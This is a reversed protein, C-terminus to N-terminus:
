LLHLERALIFVGMVLVFWGFAPKLQCGAIRQSLVNGATIGAMAVGTVLALYGWPIAANAHVSGAFGLLSNATIVALSTGIALKMPTRALLVLAPLIIFGGGAGVLGTLLGVGAGLIALRTADRGTMTPRGADPEPRQDLIMRWAAVVMLGAFLLLSARDKTLEFGGALRLLPDPLAPLLVRRTLYVMTLSPGAFVAAARPDILGRRLYVLAGTLSTAGVIFLSETIAAAPSIGFLYVLTPVALISGGGGILGLSIGIAAIALWGFLAHM